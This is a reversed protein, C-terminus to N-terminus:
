VHMINESLNIKKGLKQQKLEKKICWVWNQEGRKINEYENKLGVQAFATEVKKTLRWSKNRHERIERQILTIRMAMLRSIEKKISSNPRRSGGLNRKAQAVLEKTAGGAKKLKEHFNKAWIKKSLIFGNVQDGVVEHYGISPKSQEILSKLRIM